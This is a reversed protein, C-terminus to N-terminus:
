KSSDSGKKPPKWQEHVHAIINKIYLPSLTNLIIIDRPFTHVFFLIEWPELVDLLANINDVLGPFDKYESQLIWKQFHDKSNASSGSSFCRRNQITTRRMLTRRSDLANRRFVDQRKVKTTRHMTLVIAGIM